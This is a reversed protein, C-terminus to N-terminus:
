YNLQRKIVENEYYTDTLKWGSHIEQTYSNGTEEEHWTEMESFQYAFKGEGQVIKQFHRYTTIGHEGKIGRTVLGKEEYTLSDFNEYDNCFLKFHYEPFVFRYKLFLRSDNTILIPQFNTINAVHVYDYSFHFQNQYYREAIDYDDLCGMQIDYPFKGSQEARNLFTIYYLQFDSPTM